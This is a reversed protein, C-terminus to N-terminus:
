VHFASGRLALAISSAPNGCTPYKCSDRLYLVRHTQLAGHICFGMNVVWSAAQTSHGFKFGLNPSGNSRGSELSLRPM